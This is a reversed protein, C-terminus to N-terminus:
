RRCVVVTACKDKCRNCCVLRCQESFYTTTLLNVSYLLRFAWVQMAQIQAPTPAGNAGRGKGGGAAQMKQMTQLRFIGMVGILIFSARWCTRFPAEGDM